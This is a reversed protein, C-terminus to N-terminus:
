SCRWRFCGGAGFETADEIRVWDDPGGLPTPMGYHKALSRNVFTHRADLFDRVSRDNQVVDLFFRIPEEFMSRRLEDDFSPFRERDVGNHQEFRRFDLWHGGFETALGRVREDRLMGGPRSRLVDPKHLDGANAHDLLEADPMSAWLFYSLRSALDYDGLPQIGEGEAPRDFRYLFHPSMLIGVVSDRM